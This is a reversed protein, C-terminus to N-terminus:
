ANAASDRVPQLLQVRLSKVARQSAALDQREVEAPPCKIDLPEDVDSRFHPEMKGFLDYFILRTTLTGTGQCEKSCNALYEKAVFTVDITEDSGEITVYRNGFWSISVNPKDLVNNLTNVFADGTYSSLQDSISSM